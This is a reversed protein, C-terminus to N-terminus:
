TLLDLSLPEVELIRDAETPLSLFDSICALLYFYIYINNGIERQSQPLGMRYISACTM